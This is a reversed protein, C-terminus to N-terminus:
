MPLPELMARGASWVLELVAEDSLEHGFAMLAQVGPHQDMM